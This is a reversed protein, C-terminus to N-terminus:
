IIGQSFYLGMSSCCVLWFFNLLFSLLLFFIYPFCGAPPFNQLVLRFIPIPIKQNHKGEALDLSNNLSSFSVQQHQGCNKIVCSIHLIHLVYSWILFIPCGQHQCMFLNFSGGVHNFTIVMKSFSGLGWGSIFVCCHIYFLLELIESTTFWLKLFHLRFFKTLKM